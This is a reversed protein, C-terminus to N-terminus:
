EAAASAMEPRLILRFGKYGNAAVTDCTQRYVGIGGIDPMFVRTKGKINAGMYWSNAQPYLTQHAVENVHTVWALERSSIIGQLGFCCRCPGHLIPSRGASRDLTGQRCGSQDMM